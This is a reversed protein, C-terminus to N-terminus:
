RSGVFRVAAAIVADPQDRHPSHGCRELELLQATPVRRAIRRIQEMTGYEDDVGQV